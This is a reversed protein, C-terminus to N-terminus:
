FLKIQPLMLHKCHVPDLLPAKECTAIDGSDSDRPTSTGFVFLCVFACLLM